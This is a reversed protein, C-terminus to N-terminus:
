KREAGKFSEISARVDRYIVITSELGGDGALNHLKMVAFVVLCVYVGVVVEGLLEGRGGGGGVWCCLDSQLREDVEVATPVDIVREKPLVQGGLRGAATLWRTSLQAIGDILRIPTQVVQLLNHIRLQCSNLAAPPSPQDLIRLRSCQLHPRICILVWHYSLELRQQANVSPLMRVLIHEIGGNEGVPATHPKRPLVALQDYLRCYWFRLASYKPAIQPTM